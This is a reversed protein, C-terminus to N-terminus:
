YLYLINKKKCGRKKQLEKIHSDYAADCEASNKKKLHINLSGTCLNGVIKGWGVKKKCLKCYRLTQDNPDVDYFTGVISKKNNRIRNSVPAM